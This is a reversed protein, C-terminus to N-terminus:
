YCVNLRQACIQLAATRVHVLIKGVRKPRCICHTSFLSFVYLKFRLLANFFPFLRSFESSAGVNPGDRRYPSKQTLMLANAIADEIFLLDLDTKPRVFSSRPTSALQRRALLRPCLPANFEHLAKKELTNYNRLLGSGAAGAGEAPHWLRVDCGASFLRRQRHTDLAIM